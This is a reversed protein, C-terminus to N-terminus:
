RQKMARIMALVNEPPVDGPIAHTPACILGGDPFRSIWDRTIEYIEDATCTPLEQQTSIGGYITLRGYLTKVYDRTYIEPQFTNYVNLGCEIVDDMIERIDGCSHQVVFKGADRVRSYMRALYPKIFERWCDPGMILGKQQGWDDGFYFADIDYELAIDVIKLNRTCIKEMLAHVFEPDSIMYCLLDEMGCLTWAREFLSFGISAMRFNDGASKMLWEMSSRIYAEDVEPLEFSDIDEPDSILAGEIVGIDKDVGSKNWIVGFEDKYREDGLAIQPKILYASSIHNVGKNFDTGGTYEVMRDFMNKTYDVQYPAYDPNDFRIARCVRERNTM